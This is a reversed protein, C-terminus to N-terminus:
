PQSTSKINFFIVDCLKFIFLNFISFSFSEIQVTSGAIDECAKRGVDLLNNERLSLAGALTAIRDVRRMQPETAHVVEHTMRSDETRNGIEESGVDDGPTGMEEALKGPIAFSHSPM